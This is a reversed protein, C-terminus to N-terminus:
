PSVGSGNSEEVTNVVSAIKNDVNEKVEELSNNVDKQLQTVMNEIKTVSKKTEVTM